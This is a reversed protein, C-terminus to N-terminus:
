SDEALINGHFRRSFDRLQAPPNLWHEEVWPSSLLVGAAVTYGVIASRYMATLVGGSVSSYQPVLVVATAALSVLGGVIAARDWWLPRDHRKALRKVQYAALLGVALYGLGVLANLVGLAVSALVSM